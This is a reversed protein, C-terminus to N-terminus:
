VKLFFFCIISVEMERISQILLQGLILGLKRENNTHYYVCDSKPHRNNHKKKICENRYVHGPLQLLDISEKQLIYRFNDKKLTSGM